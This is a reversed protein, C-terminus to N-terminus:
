QNGRGTRGSSNGRLGGSSQLMLFRIRREMQLPLQRRAVKYALQHIGAQEFFDGPSPGKLQILPTRQKGVRKYVNGGWQNAVFAGAFFTKGDKGKVRGFKVNVGKKNQRPSFFRMPFPYGKNLQVIAILQDKTAKSKSRIVKKITAIKVKSNIEPRIARAVEIRVDKATANIATAIERSLRSAKSQLSDKLAKIQKPDITCAIM